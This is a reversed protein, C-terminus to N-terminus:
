VCFNVRLFLFDPLLRRLLEGPLRLTLPCSLVCMACPVIPGLVRGRLWGPTWPDCSGITYLPPRQCVCREQPEHALRPVPHLKEEEGHSGSTVGRFVVWKRVPCSILLSGM